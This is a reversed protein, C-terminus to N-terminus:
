DCELRLFYEFTDEGVERNTIAGLALKVRQVEDDPKKYSITRLLPGSSKSPSRYPPAVFKNSDPLEELRSSSSKDLSESLPRDSEVKDKEKDVRNLFDIVPRTAKIIDQRIADFLTSDTDVGTKTTNWPLVSSDECDFFVYGRFRAYQNHFKPIINGNGEGWGTARSTDAELVLRGNCFVYWGASIPNSDGVGAYLKVTVVVAQDLGELTIERETKVPKLSDSHLLEAIQVDLPIQNVTIALHKEISRQHASEIESRLRSIFNDSDFAIKVTPNLKSVTIITGIDEFSDGPEPVEVTDFELDWNDKMNWADVDILIVFRHSSTTSVIKIRKGLKFLARKMGVGFQGISHKTHEAGEPRGFRFAYHKAVKLPIGGCNDTIRFEKPSIHLRVSLDHYKDDGRLRKAGDLSNDVLDIISRTLEIDKTLM